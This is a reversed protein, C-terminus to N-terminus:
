HAPTPLAGGSAPAAPAGNAGSTIGAPVPFATPQPRNAEQHARVATYIGGGFSVLVGAVGFYVLGTLIKLDRM